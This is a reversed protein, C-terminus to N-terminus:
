KGKSLSWAILFVAPIIMWPHFSTFGLPVVVGKIATGILLSIPFLILYKM